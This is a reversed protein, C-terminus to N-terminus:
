SVEKKYSVLRYNIEKQSELLLLYEMGAVALSSGILIWLVLQFNLM